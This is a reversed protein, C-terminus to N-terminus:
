LWRHKLQYDDRYLKRSVRMVADAGVDYGCGKFTVGGYSDPRRELLHAVRVTIDLIEGAEVAIYFSVSRSMGSRAVHNIKTYVTFKAKPLWENLLDRAIIYAEQQDSLKVDEFRSRDLKTWEAGDDFVSLMGDNEEIARYLKGETIFVYDSDNICKVFKIM